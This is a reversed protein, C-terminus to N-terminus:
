PSFFTSKTKLLTVCIYTQNKKKGKSQSLKHPSLCHVPMELESERNRDLNQLDGAFVTKRASSNQQTRMSGM